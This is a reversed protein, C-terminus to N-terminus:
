GFYKNPIYSKKNRFYFRIAKLLYRLPVRGWIISWYMPSYVMEGFFGCKDCTYHEEIIRYDEYYVTKANLSGCIPCKDDYIDM